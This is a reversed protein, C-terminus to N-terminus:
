FWHGFHLFGFLSRSTNSRHFSIELPGAITAYGFKIGYGLFWETDFPIDVFGHAVNGANLMPTVYLNKRWEYQFDLGFLLANDQFLSFPEEPNFNALTGLERYRFGVMPIQNNFYNQGLGGMYVKYPLTAENGINLVANIRPALVLGEAVLFAGKYMYNVSLFRVNETEITEQGLPSVLKIELHNARGKTPYISKNFYDSRFFAGINIHHFHQRLNDPDVSEIRFLSLRSLNFFAYQHELFGGFNLNNDVTLQWYLRNRWDNHDALGQLNNQAYFDHRNFIARTEIGFGPIVGRNFHYDVMFRPTGGLVADANLVSGKFYLNRQHYNILIGIGFDTNYNIGFNLVGDSQGERARIEIDYGGDVEILHYSIQEFFDTGYLYKLGENLKNQSTKADPELDLFGLITARDVKKLGRFQINKVVIEEPIPEFSPFPQLAFGQFKKQIRLLNEMENRAADRGRKIINKNESFDPVGYGSMDPRIILDCLLERELTTRFNVYMSTKELIKSLTPRSITDSFTTQVDVGIIIDAGLSVLHDAPFNNVVGGDIYYRGEFEYPMFVSPIAMSARMADPLSGHRFVREQGTNLDTAVCIFPRPFELFNADIHYGQTLSALKAYAKHGNVFGSPEQIRGEKVGLKLLHREALTRNIYTRHLRRPDSSILDNWDVSEVIERIEKPSYGIAYLGGVVAGMSTGSVFDIPIGLSDIIELVGIHAFGKAGGGSLVLGVKPRSEQATLSLSVALFLLIVLSQRHFFM